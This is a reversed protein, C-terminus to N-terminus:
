EENVVEKFTDYKILTKVHNYNSQCVLRCYCTGNLHMDRRTSSAMVTLGDKQLAPFLDEKLHNFMFDADFSTELKILIKKNSKTMEKLYPTLERPLLNKSGDSVTITENAEVVVHVTEIESVDEDEISTVKAIFDSKSIAKIEPFQERLEKLSLDHLNINESM